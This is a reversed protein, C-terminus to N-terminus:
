PPPPSFGSGSGGTARGGSGGGNRGGAGGRGGLAPTGSSSGGAGNGGAPTAAGGAAGDDGRVTSLMTTDLVGCEAAACVSFTCANGQVNGSATTVKTADFGLAVAGAFEYGGQEHILFYYSQLHNAADYVAGSVQARFTGKGNCPAEIGYDTSHWAGNDIQERNLEYIVRINKECGAMVIAGGEDVRIMGCFKEPTYNPVMTPVPPATGTASPTAAASGGTSSATGGTSVTGGVAAAPAATAGGAGGATSIPAPALAADQASVPDAACASLTLLWLVWPIRRHTQV